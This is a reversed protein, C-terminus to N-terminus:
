DFYSPYLNPNAQSYPNYAQAHPNYAPELHGHPNYYGGQEAGQLGHGQGQGQGFLRDYTQFKAIKEISMGGEEDMFPNYQGPYPQFGGGGAQQGGQQGGFINPYLQKYALYETYDEPDIFPYQYPNYMPQQPPQTPRQPPQQPRPPPQPQRHPQQPQRPPQQPYQQSAPRQLHPYTPKGAGAGGMRPTQSIGTQKPQIVPQKPAIAGIQPQDVPQKDPATAVGKGFAPQTLTPQVGGAGISSKSAHAADADMGLGTKAAISTEASPSLARADVTGASMGAQDVGNGLDAIPYGDYGVTDNGYTTTNGYDYFFTENGASADTYNGEVALTDNYVPETPYVDIGQAENPQKPVTDSYPTPTQGSPQSQYQGIGQTKGQMQGHVPGRPIQTRAPPQPPPQPQAYFKSYLQEYYNNELILRQWELPFTFFENRSVRGDFNIDSGRFINFVEEKDEAYRTAQFLDNYDIAGDKNADFKTFDAQTLPAMGFPPTGAAGQGGTQRNMIQYNYIDEFDPPEYEAQYGAGAGAGVGAQPGTNAGMGSTGPIPIPPNPRPGLGQGFENEAEMEEPQFYSGYPNGYRYSAQPAPACLSVLIACVLILISNMRLGKQETYAM